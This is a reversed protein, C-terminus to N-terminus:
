VSLAFFNRGNILGTKRKGAPIIKRWDSQDCAAYTGSLL